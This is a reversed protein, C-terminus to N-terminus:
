GRTWYTETVIENGYEDDDDYYDPEFRRRPGELDECSWDVKMNSTVEAWDVYPFLFDAEDGAVEEAYDRLYEDIHSDHVYTRGDEELINESM